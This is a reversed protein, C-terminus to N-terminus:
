NNFRYLSFAAIVMESLFKELLYSSKATLVFHKQYHILNLGTNSHGTFPPSVLMESFGVNNCESLFCLYASNKYGVPNVFDRFINKMSWASYIGCPPTINNIHDPKFFIELNDSFVIENFIGPYYAFM